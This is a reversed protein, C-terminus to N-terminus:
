MISEPKPLRLPRANPRAGRFEEAVDSEIDAKRLPHERYDPWGVFNDDWLSMFSKLDKAQLYRFYNQEGNWVEMQEPLLQPASEQKNRTRNHDDQAGAVFPTCAAAGFLLVAFLLTRAM